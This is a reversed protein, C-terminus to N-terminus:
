PVLAFKGSSSKVGEWARAIDDLPVPTVDLVLDGALARQLMTSYASVLDERPVAFNSYGLIALQRGRVLASSLTAHPGASQGVHVIRAGRAAAALAEAVPEGWLLDCVVNIGDPASQQLREGLDNGIPIVEDALSEIERLRDPNRGVAIIQDAGAARAAQLAVRGVTGTAGLVVVSEGAAVKARWMIPLWGAIGATGLGAALPADAEDPIDILTDIPAVFVESSTGNRAVGLGGGLAFVRRGSGSVRGVGEIAPVYPMPPHGAYFGGSAVAVDVPNLSAAELEIAVEGGAPQPTEIDAVQPTSGAEAVVVARM